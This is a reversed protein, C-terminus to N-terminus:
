EKGVKELAKLVKGPTIPYDTIWKGIANFEEPIYKDREMPNIPMDKIEEVV